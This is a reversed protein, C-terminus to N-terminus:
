DEGLIKSAKPKITYNKRIFKRIHELAHRNDDTFLVLNQDGPSITEHKLMKQMMEQIPEYFDKGIIVVPFDNLIGTQILTLTEFLEDMTGFGGPFVVFAYSYKVLLVKRIFFYDFRVAKDLYPNDKQEHPLKITCGISTGNADKAGRNAAEMIGPGGGTMVNFGLEAIMKGLDRAQIYDKHTEPTRASGFVTINPGAFHLKRFGRFFQFFVKFLFILERGRSNPGSLFQTDPPIIRKIAM